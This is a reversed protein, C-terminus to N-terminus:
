ANLPPGRNENNGPHPSNRSLLVFSYYDSALAATTVPSYLPDAEYVTNVVLNDYHCNYNVQHFCGSKKQAHNCNTFSDRHSALAEHFFQRPMNGLTFVLILLLAPIKKINQIFLM